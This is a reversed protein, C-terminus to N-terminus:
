ADIAKEGLEDIMDTLGLDELKERKFLGTKVDWGRAVYYDDMVKEFDERKVTRGIASFPKGDKGPLLAEPNFVGIVSDPKEQPETFHFEELVDEARGQRGERLYIARCLNVVREGSKLFATEDMDEGTVASFLRAELDPDGVGSARNGTFDLPWFFDCFIMNEEAYARNQMLAAAVGKSESSDFVAAQETGWFTRALNKLKETTFNGMMGETAMWVMWKVLPFSVAHLQTIPHIPETAHIPALSLFLRPGYLDPHFGYRSVLGDLLNEAGLEEAARRSGEALIDGVGKRNVVLDFFRDLWKVTGYLDPDLGTDTKSILGAAVAKPVWEYLLNLENTCLGHQNALRNAAFSVKGLTGSKAQEAYAYAYASACNKAFGREGDTDEYLGRGCVGPCSFCPFVKQREIDDLVPERWYRESAQGKWLATVEKTVKLFQEPRAAPLVKRESSIVLAKLNKSGMVAGMGKGATAGRKGAIGAFRVKLEGARSIVAMEAKKGFRKTLADITALADRGWLDGAPECTVTGNQSIVLIVPKEARGLIDLGDLGAWKLAAGFWGGLNGFGYKEPFVLPSKAMVIWRSAAQARTGALPGTMFFLHNEPELAGTQPFVNEWYLRSALGRGGIYSDRYRDTEIESVKEDTLNIRLIKGTWGFHKSM